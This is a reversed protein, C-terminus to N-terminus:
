GRKLLQRAERDSRVLVLRLHRHQALTELMQPVKRLYTWTYRVFEWDPLRPRLGAIHPHQGSLERRLMRLLCLERPPVFFIVTDARAARRDLTSGYNGDMIWADGDLATQLRKLWVDREVKEWGANWYLDDLHTLPLGTRAALKKALTSKGAGPSGVILVHKM